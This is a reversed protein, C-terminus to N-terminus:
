ERQALRKCKEQLYRRNGPRRVYEFYAYVGQDNMNQKVSRPMMEEIRTDTIRAFLFFALDGVRFDSYTPAQRPDAMKTADTIKSILCPVLEKGQKMVDNYVPDDIPEGKFPLKKIRYLNECLAEAESRHSAGRRSRCDAFGGSLHVLAGLMVLSAFKPFRNAM